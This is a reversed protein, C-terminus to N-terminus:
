VKLDRGKTPIRCKLIGLYRILIPIGWPEQFYHFNYRVIMEDCHHSVEEMNRHLDDGTMQMGIDDDVTEKKTRHKGCIENVFNRELLAQSNTPDEKLQKDLEQVISKRV